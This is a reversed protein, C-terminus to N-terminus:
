TSCVNKYSKIFMEVTDKEDEKLERSELMQLLDLDEDINMFHNRFLYVLNTIEEREINLSKIFKYKDIKYLNLIIDSFENIYAGHPNNYLKLIHSIEKASFDDRKLYIFIKKIYDPYQEKLLDWDAWFLDDILELNEAETLNDKNM